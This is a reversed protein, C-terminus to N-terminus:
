VDIDAFATMHNKRMAKYAASKGIKRPLTKNDITQAKTMLSIVSTVLIEKRPKNDLINAMVNFVYCAGLFDEEKTCYAPLSYGLGFLGSTKQPLIAKIGDDDQLNGLRVYESMPALSAIEELCFFFQQATSAGLLGPILIKRLRDDTITEM